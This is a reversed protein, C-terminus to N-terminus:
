KAKDDEEVQDEEDGKGDDELENGEDDSERKEQAKFDKEEKPEDDEAAVANDDVEDDANLKRKERAAEVNKAEARESQARGRMIKMLGVFASYDM